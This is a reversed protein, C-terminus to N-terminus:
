KVVSRGKEMEIKIVKDACDILEPDHSVMIIQIGLRESIQHIIEAGKIPLDEGKLFRLPEDLILIPRSPQTQLTFCSFRLALSAIDIAGGGSASQPDIQYGDKVFWIDAEIKGRRSVFDIKIEYPDPFVSAMAMSCIDSLHYKLKDQTLQTVQHLIIQAKENLKLSRQSKRKHITKEKLQLSLQAVVGKKRDLFSRLHQIEHKM